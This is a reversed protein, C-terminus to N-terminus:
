KKWGGGPNESSASGDTWERFMTWHGIAAGSHHAMIDGPQMYNCNIRELFEHGGQVEWVGFAM